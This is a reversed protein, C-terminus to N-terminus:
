GNTQGEGRLVSARSCLVKSIHSDHWFERAVSEAWAAVILPAAAELAAIVYGRLTPPDDVASAAIVAENIAEKPINLDGM